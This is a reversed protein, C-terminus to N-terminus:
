KTNSAAAPGRALRERIIVSVDVGRAAAEDKIAQKVEAPVVASVHPM